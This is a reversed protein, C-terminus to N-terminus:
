WTKISAVGSVKRSVLPAYKKSSKSVLYSKYYLTSTGSVNAKLSKKVNLWVDSTGTSTFTATQIIFNKANVDATGTVMIVANNCSGELTLNNASKVNLVLTTCEVHLPADATGDMTLKLKPFNLHSKFTVDTTGTIEIEELDACSFSTTSKDFPGGNSITITSGEEEVTLQDPEGDEDIGIVTMMDGDQELTVDLTGTIVLKKFSNQAAATQVTLAFAAILIPTIIKTNM